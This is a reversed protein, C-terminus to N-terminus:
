RATTASLINLIERRGSAGASIDIRSTFVVM